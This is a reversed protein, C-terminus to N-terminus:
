RRRATRKSKRVSRPKPAATSIAEGKGKLKSYEFYSYVMAYIASAIVPIIILAFAYQPYIIGLLSIIGSIQFLHGGVMHTKNWVEDSSLTWPTRIGMFWNRKSHQLAIGIV